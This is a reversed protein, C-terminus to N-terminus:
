GAHDVPNIKSIVYRHKGSKTVPIDDVIEFEVRMQDGCAKRIRGLAEQRVEESFDSDAILTIRVRDIEDQVVQFKRVGQKLLHGWFTGGLYNGNPAKVIDTTRGIVSGIVPLTLGCECKGWGLTGYDEIAYRIFPMGINDLDTIVLEGPGDATQGADTEGRREQGFGGPQAPGGVPVIEALVRECALHLGQRYKCERAVPGFECSGYHNYVKAGFTQEIISYQWDFGTEGSAMIVSPRPPELGSDLIVQAMHSLASPYGVIVKPRLRRLERVYRAVSDADMKYISMVHINTLWNRLAAKLRSSKKGRFRIGWLMATRDGIGVDLWEDMRVLCAQRAQMSATDIFFSLNLGTSGGTEDRKLRSRPYGEAILDDLNDRIDSKRLLPLSKLDDLNKFDGPEAGLENFLRRYYPVRSAAHELLRKLKGWQYAKIEDAPLTQLRHMESLNKLVDDRKLARYAPYVLKRILFPNM